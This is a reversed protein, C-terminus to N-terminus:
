ASPPKGADAYIWDGENFTVGACTVPKAREGVRAKGPKVPCVGLAKVGVHIKGIDQTDRVCGNIIVGQLSLQTKSHRAELQEQPIECAHHAQIRCRMGEQLRVAWDDRHLKAGLCDGLM